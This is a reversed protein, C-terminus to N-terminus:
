LEVDINVNVNVDANSGGNRSRRSDERDDESNQEGDDAPRNLDREDDNVSDDDVEIELRSRAETQLARARDIIKKLDTRANSGAPTSTAASGDAPTSTATSRDRDDSGDDDHNFKFEVSRDVNLSGSIIIKAEQAARQAAQFLVFAENYSGADLRTQGEVVRNEAVALTTNAQVMVTGSLRAQRNELYRRVEDIKNLAATMAGEAATQVTARAQNTVTAEAEFRQDDVAQTKSTVTIVLQAVQDDTTSPTSTALGLLVIAHGRLSAELLAQIAAAQESDGQDSFRQAIATTREIHRELAQQLKTRTEDNLRNKVALQEAEGLRRNTQEVSWEAKAAPSMAVVSRVSENISVKVPYLFDGPLASEAALSTGGSAAIVLAIILGIFMPKSTVFLYRRGGHPQQRLREPATTRVIPYQQIHSLLSQELRAKEAETLSQQLLWASIKKLRHKM